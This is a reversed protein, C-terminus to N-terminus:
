KAAPAAAEKSKRLTERNGLITKKILAHQESSLVAAAKDLGEDSLQVGSASGGQYNVMIEVFSDFQSPSMAPLGAALLLPQLQRRVYGSQSTQRDFRRLAEIGGDGLLAALETTNETRAAAQLEQTRKPDAKGDVGERAAQEAAARQADTGDAMIAALRKLGDPGLRREEAFKAYTRLASYEVARLPVSPRDAAEPRVADKPEPQRIDSPIPQSAIPNAAIKRRLETNTSELSAVQQAQERHRRVARGAWFLLLLAAALFLLHKPKM